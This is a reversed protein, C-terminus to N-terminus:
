VPWPVRGQREATIDRLGPVLACVVPIGHEHVTLDVIRTQRNINAPIISLQAQGSKMPRRAACAFLSSQEKFLASRSMHSYAREDVTGGAVRANRLDLQLGFENQCAERYAKLAATQEDDACGYGAAIEGDAMRSLAIVVPTEGKDHRILYFKLRADVFHRHESWVTGADSPPVLEILACDGSFWLSLAHREICEYAASKAAQRLDPGAAYGTSTRPQAGPVAGANRLILGAEIRGAPSFEATLLEITGDRDIRRHARRMLMAEHEAAEGICTCFAQFATFGVGGYDTRLPEGDGSYPSDPGGRFTASAGFLFMDRNWPLQLSFVREMCAAMRLLKVANPVKSDPIALSGDLAAIGLDHLLPVALLGGVERVQEMATAATLFDEANM